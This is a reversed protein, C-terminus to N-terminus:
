RLNPKVPEGGCEKIWENVKEFDEGGLKIYMAYNEIAKKTEEMNNHYLIALGLYYKPNQPDLKQAEFYNQEAEKFKGLKTNAQAIHYQTEPFNPEYELSENFDAIAIRPSDLILNLEGRQNLAEILLRRTEPSNLNGQRSPCLHEDECTTTASLDGGENLIGENYRGRISRTYLLCM